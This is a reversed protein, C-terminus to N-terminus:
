GPTRLAVDDWCAETGAQTIILGAQSGGPDAEAPVAIVASVVGDAAVAAQGSSLILGITVGDDATTLPAPENLVMEGDRWSQLRWGAVQPIAVLAIYNDPDVYHVVLGAGQAIKTLKATVGIDRTSTTQVLAVAPDGGADLAACAAGDAITFSDAPTLTWDLGTTTTGLTGDVRDFGDLPALVPITPKTPDGPAATGTGPDVPAAVVTSSTSGLDTLDPGRIPGTLAIVAGALMALAILGAVVAPGFHDGLRERLSGASPGPSVESM